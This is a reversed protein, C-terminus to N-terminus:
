AESLNLHGLKLRFHFKCSLIKENSFLDLQINKERSLFSKISILNQYFNKM